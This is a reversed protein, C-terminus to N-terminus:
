AAGHLDEPVTILFERDLKGNRVIVRKGSGLDYDEPSLKRFWPPNHRRAFFFFLRKVRVHHCQRLLADLRRPSLSVLGQMLHDAHEFSVWAPVDGLVELWAQEPRAVLLEPLGKRWEVKRLHEALREPQSWLRRSNHWSITRDLSLRGLWGPPQPLDSYLHLRKGQQLYHALGEFELASLGGPYVLTENMRQLSVVVAEWTLTTGPQAVLGRAPSVLRGSKLANDLAHRTMGRALLWKRTALLGHPLLDTDRTSFASKMTQLIAYKRRGAGCIISAIFQPNAIASFHPPLRRLIYRYYVKARLAAQPISQREPRLFILAAGKM